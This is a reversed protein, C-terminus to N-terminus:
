LRTRDERKWGRCIIGYFGKGKSCAPRVDGALDRQDARDVKRARLHDRRRDRHARIPLRVQRVRRRIPNQPHNQQRMHASFREAPTQGILRDFVPDAPICEEEVFRELIDLTSRAKESVFPLVLTPIRQSAPLIKSDKSKSSM